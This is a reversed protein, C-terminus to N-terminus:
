RNQGTNGTRRANYSIHLASARRLEQKVDQVIGMKTQEDAKLNWIMRPRDAEDRTQREAEVFNIIDSVEALNDNLQIHSEAGYIRQWEPKPKGIYINAVLSKQELKTLETAGPIKFSVKPTEQRMKVTVMFFFLVMFVIDPLSSTSIEPLEKSGDKRFKSM